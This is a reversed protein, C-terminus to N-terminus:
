GNDLRSAQYHGIRWGDEGRGIHVGIYLSVTPRDPYAFDASIYGVVVDPAPRRSELILYSVTMGPPQSAYYNAVVQRGVSYPRLGQFIADQSFVEAVREPAQGNIGAKWQGLVVHLEDIDRVNVM